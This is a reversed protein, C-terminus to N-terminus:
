RSIREGTWWPFGCFRLNVTCGAPSAASGDVLGVTGFRVVHDHKGNRLANWCLKIDQTGIPQGHSSVIDTSSFYCAVYLLLDSRGRQDSAAASQFRTVNYKFQDTGSVSAIGAPRGVM